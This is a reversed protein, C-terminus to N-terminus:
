ESDLIDSDYDDIELDEESDNSDTEYDDQDLLPRIRKNTRTNGKKRPEGKSTSANSSFASQMQQNRREEEFERIDNIIEGAINPNFMNLSTASETKSMLIQKKEEYVKSLEDIKSLIQHKDTLDKLTSIVSYPNFSHSEKKRYHKELGYEKDFICFHFANDVILKSLIYNADLHEAEKIEAHLEMINRWDDLKVRIKFLDTPM